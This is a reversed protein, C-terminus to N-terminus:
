SEKKYERMAAELATFNCFSNHHCHSPDNSILYAKRALKMVAEICDLRNCYRYEKLVLNGYKRDTQILQQINIETLVNDPVPIMYQLRLSSIPTGDRQRIIFNAYPFTTRHSVPAYYSIGHLKFVVGCLMKKRQGPYEVDPVRSDVKKLYAIYDPDICYFQLKDVGSM